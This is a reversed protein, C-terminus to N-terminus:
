AAGHVGRIAHDQIHRWRICNGGATMTGYFTGDPGQVMAGVPAVGTEFLCDHLKAFDAGGPAIKFITGRRGPDTGVFSTGQTIGYLNGDAGRIIGRPFIGDDGSTPLNFVNTPTDGNLPVRWIGGPSNGLVHLVNAEGSVLSHPRMPTTGSGPLAFIKTLKGPTEGNFAPDLKFLTGLPDGATGTGASTVGYLLGDGINVLRAIPVRGTDDAVFNDLLTVAATTPNFRFATGSNEFGGESATGYLQGDPGITLAALPKTGNSGDAPFSYLSKFNQGWSQVATAALLLAAFRFSLTTM